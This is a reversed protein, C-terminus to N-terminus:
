SHQNRGPSRRINPTYAHCGRMRTPSSSGGFAAHRILFRADVAKIDLRREMRSRLVKTLWGPAIHDSLRSTLTDLDRNALPIDRAIAMASKAAMSPLAGRHAADELAHRLSILPLTLATLSVPDYLLAIEDTGSIRGSRYTEYVWGRGIMGADSLEAARWAGVSGAGSVKVGRALADEIEDSTLMIEPDLVGDIIIATCGNPLVSLDGAEVPPRVRTPILSRVEDLGLSLGAFVIMDAATNFSSGLRNASM